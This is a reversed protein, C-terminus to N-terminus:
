SDYGPIVSRDGGKEDFCDEVRSTAGERVKGKAPTGGEGSEIGVPTGMVRTEKPTDAYGGAV